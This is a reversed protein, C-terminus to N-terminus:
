ASVNKFDGVGEETLQALDFRYVKTNAGTKIPSDPCTRHKVPRYHALASHFQQYNDYLIEQRRTSCWSVYKVFCDQLRLDVCQTKGQFSFCYERGERLAFPSSQDETRSIYALVDVVKSAEAMASVTQRDEEIVTLATHLTELEEDLGTGFIEVLLSRMFNFAHLLVAYSFVERHSREM